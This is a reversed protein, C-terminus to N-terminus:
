ISTLFTVTDGVELPAPSITEVTVRNVYKQYHALLNQAITDADSQSQVLHNNITLYSAGGQALITADALKKLSYVKSELEPTHKRGFVKISYSRPICERGYATAVLPMNNRDTKVTIKAKTGSLYTNTFSASYPKKYAYGKYTFNNPWSGVLYGEQKLEVSATHESSSVVRSSFKTPATFGVLRVKYAQSTGDPKSNSLTVSASVSTAGYSISYSMSIYPSTDYLECAFNDYRGATFSKTLTITTSAGPNVGGSKSELTSKSGGPLDDPNTLEFSWNVWPGSVYSSYNVIKIPDGSGITTWSSWVQQQTGLGDQYDYGFSIDHYTKDTAFLIEFEEGNDVNGSFQGIATKIDNLSKSPDHLISVKAGTETRDIETTVGSKNAMTLEYRIKEYGTFLVNHEESVTEADLTGNVTGLTAEETFYEKRKREEGIVEVGNFFEADDARTELINANDDTIDFVGTGISQIAKFNAKGDGDFWFRYNVLQCLKKVAELGSTGENFWCRDITKSPNDYLLDGSSAIVKANVLINQLVTIINASTFYKVTLTGSPLDQTIVLKGTVWDYTWSSYKVGDLLVDYIGKCGAPLSYEYSGNATITTISGWYSDKPFSYRSLGDTPDIARVTFTVGDPSKRRVPSCIFGQFYPWTYPTERIGDSNRDVKVGIYVKIKRRLSFVWGSPGNIPDYKGDKDELTIDCSSATVGDIASGQFNLNISVIDDRSVMSWSSGSLVYVTYFPKIFADNLDETNLAIANGESGTLDKM